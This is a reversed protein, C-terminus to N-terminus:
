LSLPERLGLVIGMVFCGLGQVWALPFISEGDYTFLDRIGLRALLGFIAAPFLLALVPPSLPRYTKPKPPETAAEPPPSEPRSPPTDNVDSSSPTPSLSPRQESLVSNMYPKLSVDDDRGGNVARDGMSLNKAIKLQLLSILRANLRAHAV